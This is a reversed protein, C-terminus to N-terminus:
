KESQIVENKEENLKDVFGDGDSDKDERSKMYYWGFVSILLGYFLLAYWNIKTITIETGSPLVIESAKEITAKTTTTTQVTTNGPLIVMTNKPVVVENPLSEGVVTVKTEEKLVVEIRDELKTTLLTGRPLDAVTDKSLVTETPKNLTDPARETLPPTSILSRCSALTFIITIASLTIFSKM